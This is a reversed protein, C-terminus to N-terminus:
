QPVINEVLWQGPAPGRVLKLLYAAKAGGTKTVELRFESPASLPTASFSEAGDGVKGAELILKGRNFDFGQEKDSGFPEALRARLAPTMGAALAVAREDKPMANADCLLGAFARAAFRQYEADPSNGAGTTPTSSASTMAFYDVRWAGGETLMRLFYDGKRGQGQFGGWLVAADSAAFGTPLGFTAGSGVRRMWSEAALASFGRAKDSPLEAPLGVTKAFGTFLRDATATGEGLAKLFAVAEKGVGSDLDVKRPPQNAPGGNKSNQGDAGKGEDAKRSSPKEGGCGPLTFVVVAALAFATVLRAMRRSSM